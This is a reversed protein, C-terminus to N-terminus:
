RTAEKILRNITRVLCAKANAKTNHGYTSACCYQETDDSLRIFKIVWQTHTVRPGTFHDIRVYKADKGVIPAPTTTNM